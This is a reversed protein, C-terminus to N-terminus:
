CSPCILQYSAHDTALDAAIVKYVDPEVDPYTASDTTVVLFLGAKLQQLQRDKEQGARNSSKCQLSKRM